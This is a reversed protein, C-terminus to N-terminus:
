PCRYLRRAEAVASEVAIVYSMFASDRSERLESLPCVKLGFDTLEREGEKSLRLQSIVRRPLVVAYVTMHHQEQYQPLTIQGISISSRNLAWSVMTRAVSPLVEESLERLM